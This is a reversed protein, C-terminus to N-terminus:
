WYNSYGLHVLDTPSLRSDRVSEDMYLNYCAVAVAKNPRLVVMNLGQWFEILRYLDEITFKNEQESGQEEPLCLSVIEAFISVPICLEVRPHGSVRSM